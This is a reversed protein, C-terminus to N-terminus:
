HALGIFLPITLASAVTQVTIITAMLTTDGGMQRALIYSSVATPLASFLVVVTLAPGDVGLLTCLMLALLPYGVLKFLSSVAIAPLRQSIGGPKLGAGVALLGMPLAARGIVALTEHFAEPLPLNSANLMFGAVCGLLLPNRMLELLLGMGAGNGKSGYRALVPVCLLNNLPVIVLLAVASLAIGQDGFMAAAGALGVYTNVRIAGQFISSFAPNDFPLRRRLLLLGLATLVITGGLAMAMASTEADFTATSLKNVLLAPFLVFYTIREAQPWFGDGPFRFRSLAYGLLIAAFVPALASIM